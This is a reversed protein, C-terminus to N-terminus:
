CQITSAAIAGFHPEFYWLINLTYIFNDSVTDLIRHVSIFVFAGLSNTKTITLLHKTLSIILQIVSEYMSVTYSTTIFVAWM